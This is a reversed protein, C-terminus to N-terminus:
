ATITVGVSVIAMAPAVVSVMWTVAGRRRTLSTTRRMPSRM